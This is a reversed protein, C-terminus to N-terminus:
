TLSQCSPCFHTGRGVLRTKQIISNCRKCATGDLGYVHLYQQNEGAMNKTTRYDSLTTGMNKIANELVMKINKLLLRVEQSTVKNCCKAPHIHSLFLCEDVYINGLGCVFQQDLLAAKLSRKSKKLYASFTQFNFNESLPECGFKALHQQLNPVLEIGGFKRIDAYYLQEGSNIAFRIHCHKKDTDSPNFVYKGTMRLHTLIGMNNSFEFIIYKCRRSVKQIPMNLFVSLDLGNTRKLLSATLVSITTFCKGALETQLENVVTQVEPLEPM